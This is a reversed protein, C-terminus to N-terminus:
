FNASKCFTEMILSQCLLALFWDEQRSHFAPNIETISGVKLKTRLQNFHSKLLYSDDLMQDILVYETFITFYLHQMVWKWPQSHLSINSLHKLSVLPWTWMNMDCCPRRVDPNDSMQPKSPTLSVFVSPFHRDLAGREEWPFKLFRSEVNWATIFMQKEKKAQPIYQM